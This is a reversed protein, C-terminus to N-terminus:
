LTRYTNRIYIIFSSENCLKAILKIYLKGNGYIYIYHGWVHWVEGRWGVTAHLVVVEMVGQVSVDYRRAFCLRGVPHRQLFSRM